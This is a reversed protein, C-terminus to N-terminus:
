QKVCSTISVEGGFDRIPALIRTSDNFRLLITGVKEITALFRKKAFAETKEPVIM